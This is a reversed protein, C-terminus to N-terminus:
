FPLSLSTSQPPLQGSQSGPSWQPSGESQEEPMQEEPMQMAGVPVQLSPTIFSV